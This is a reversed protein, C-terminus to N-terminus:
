CSRLIQEALAHDAVSDVDVAARASLVEVHKITCGAQESLQELARGLTLRGCVYSLATLWGVGRAMRWPRKRHAQMRRWFDVARDGARTRVLFLNSGCYAGDAFRLITRKSDPFARHVHERPVLGAVFDAEVLSALQYFTDVITPTLLAHDAATVLVPRQELNQLAAYASEAPGTQPQLWEFPSNAIISRMPEAQAVTSEPGVILGDSVSACTSLTTLVRTVCPTGAVSVLIGAPAGFERALPNGGPREGALVIARISM